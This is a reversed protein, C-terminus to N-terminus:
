RTQAVPVHLSWSTSKREVAFGAREYLSLAGTVNGTDVGLSVDQVGAAKWTALAIALLARGIGTGRFAQLTGIQGLWVEMRGTAAVDAASIYALAYGALAGDEALALVSLDPRFSRSGTFLEKWEQPTRDTSGFHEAFADNHGRRVEDDRAWDFPAMTIGVPAAVEPLEGDLTRKMDFWYRTPELGLQEALVMAGAHHEGVAISISASSSSHRAAHLEAGAHLQWTLLQRGIGRRRHAPHVVGHCWINHVERIVIQGQVMGAAVMEDGVRGVRTHQELDVLEGMFHERIDDADFHEGTDDVKEAAALLAAVKDADDDRVPRWKAREIRQGTGDVPQVTPSRASPDRVLERTREPEMGIDM